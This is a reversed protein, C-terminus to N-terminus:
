ERSNGGVNELDKPKVPRPVPTTPPTPAFGHQYLERDIEQEVVLDRWEDLEKWYDEWRPIAMGQAAALKRKADRAQNIFRSHPEQAQKLQAIISESTKPQPIKKGMIRINRFNSKPIPQLSSEIKHKQSSFSDNARSRQASIHDEPEIIMSSPIKEFGCPSVRIKPLILNNSICPETTISQETGVELAMWPQRPTM